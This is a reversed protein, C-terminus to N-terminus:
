FIPHEEVWAATIHDLAMFTSADEIVARWEPTELSAKATEIDDFWM